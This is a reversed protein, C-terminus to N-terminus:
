TESDNTRIHVTGFGNARSAGVGLARAIRLIKILTKEEQDLRLVIYKAKFYLAPERKGDYSIHMVKTRSSYHEVFSTELLKAAKHVIEETVSYTNQSILYPVWLLITPTITFRRIHQTAMYPTTLLAPSVSKIIVYKGLKSLTVNPDEISVDEITYSVIANEFKLRTKDGQIRKLKNFILSINESTSGIEFTYTGSLPLPKIEYVVGSNVRRTEFTPTAVSGDKILPSVRIMKFFGKVPRFIAQLEPVEALLITKAIKGTYNYVHDSSSITAKVKLIKFEVDNM